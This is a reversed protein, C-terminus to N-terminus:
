TSLYRLSLVAGGLSRLHFPVGLEREESKLYSVVVFIIKKKFISKGKGGKRREELTSVPSPASDCVVSHHSVLTLHTFASYVQLVAHILSGSRDRLWRVRVRSLVSSRLSWVRSDVIQIHLFLSCLSLSLFLPSPVRCSDIKRHLPQFGVRASTPKGAGTPPPLFVCIRFFTPSHTPPPLSLLSCPLYIPSLM